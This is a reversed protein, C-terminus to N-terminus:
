DDKVDVEVYSTSGVLSPKCIDEFNDRVYEEVLGMIDSEIVDTGFNHWVDFVETGGHKCVTFRVKVGIKHVVDKIEIDYRVKGM